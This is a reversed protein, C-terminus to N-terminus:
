YNKNKAKATVLYYGFTGIHGARDQDLALFVERGKLYGFFAERFGDVGPIAIPYLNKKYIAYKLQKLFPCDM